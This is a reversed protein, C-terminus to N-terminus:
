LLEEPNQAYVVRATNPDYVQGVRQIQPPRPGTVRSKILHYRAPRKGDSRIYGARELWGLYALATARTTKSSVSAHAALETATVSGLIRLTRWMAETGLGTTSPTGDKKLQPADVGNDRVMRWHNGSVDQQHREVFGGKELSNLYTHVTAYKIGTHEVLCALTFPEGSYQRIVEWVRQRNSKGGRQEVHIPKRGTAMKTM